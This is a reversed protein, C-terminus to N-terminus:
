ILITRNAYKKVAQQFKKGKDEFNKFLSYSPSATSLLVVRGPATNKYIFKLAADLSSTSFFKPAAEASVNKLFSTNKEASSDKTARYNKAATKLARKIAAGIEVGNAPLLVINKIKLKVIEKALATFNYGRDEGGLIIAGIKEKFVQLAALTSEPTTSIADDYFSLGQHEGVFELRHALNKFKALARKIIANSVGYLKAICVAAMINQLNHEGLLKIKSLPIIKEQSYYLCDSKISCKKLYNVSKAPTTAALKKLAPYDHNFIFYDQANQHRTINTKASLYNAFGQHYPLHDPFINIMLAIHPSRDASSLQHSSLEYVFIQKSDATQRSNLIKKSNGITEPSLEKAMYKLPDYGINGVLAVKKGAAKLIEYILSATTSKGKTGTIGITQGAYRDLFINTATTIIRGSNRAAQIEPLRDSLGPSKIIVEYDNLARLYNLGYYLRINKDKIELKKQDAIGIKFDPYLRKLYDHVFHGEHGYGLILTPRFNVPVNHEAQYKLANNILRGPAFITKKIKKNFYAPIFDHDWEKKAGLLLFAARVEEPTGVCEFPKFRTEGWLEQFTPLLSKKQFLNAGFIKLLKKKPVFAALQSFIFACKPCDNCWHTRIPRTQSFNRNCSSFASFYKPYHSFIKVINLESLPRLLSFYNLDPSISNKLYDRLDNEFELSKSYQHNIEEGLYNVNGFNASAENAFVLHRYDKIVATLVTVWAFIASIPIHGNYVGLKNLELLKPDITRKIILRPAGIIKATEKQINSDNLSILTFEHGLEKLREAAVCSDKGGGTGCLCRDKLKLPGAGNENRGSAKNRASHSPFNILGRYDIRNKYFFEGLGKTYIKNWFVAEARGLTGSKIVIQRPCFAKYYGTGLILHLNFLIKNVLARNKQWDIKGPGWSLTETFKLGNDFSYLFIVTNTRTNLRYSEFIFKKPKKPYKNM